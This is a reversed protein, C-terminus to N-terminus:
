EASPRLTSPNIESITCTRKNSLTQGRRVKILTQYKVSQTSAIRVEGDYYSHYLNVYACIFMIRFEFIRFSEGRIFDTCL